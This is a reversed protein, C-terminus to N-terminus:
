LRLRIKRYVEAYERCSKQWTFSQRMARRVMDEWGAPNNSWLAVAETIVDFFERPTSNIFIFGTADEAPWAIITDRLGGVATAIPPTGYRLAYMQTLGCPEYRSPMLFIDSGAQMRHALDETYGVVAAVRGHYTEMLDLIKAEHSAKGEGLVVIGVDLEMLEPIIANLLDIGKQGRM